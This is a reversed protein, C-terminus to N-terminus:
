LCAEELSYSYYCSFIVYPAKIPPRKATPSLDLQSDLKRYTSGGTELIKVEDTHTAREPGETMPNDLLDLPNGTGNKDFEFDFDNYRKSKDNDRKSVAERTDLRESPKKNGLGSSNNRNLSVNFQIISKSSQTYTLTKNSIM